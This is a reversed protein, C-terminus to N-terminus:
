KEKFIPPMPGYKIVNGVRIAQINPIKDVAEWIAARAESILEDNDMSQVAYEDPCIYRAVEFCDNCMWHHFHLKTWEPVDGGYGFCLDCRVM